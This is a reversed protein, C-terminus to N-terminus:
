EACEIDSPTVVPHSVPGLLRHRATPSTLVCPRRGGRVYDGAITHQVHVCIPVADNHHKPTTKACGATVPLALAALAALRLKM